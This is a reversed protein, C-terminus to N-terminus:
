ALVDDPAQVKARVTFNRKIGNQIAKIVLTKLKIRQWSCILVSNFEEMMLKKQLSDPMKVDVTVANEGKM